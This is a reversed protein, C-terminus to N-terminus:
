RYSPVWGLWGVVGLVSAWVLLFVGDGWRLRPTSLVHYRGDFGRCKMAAVIRDARDLSGLLLHGVLYGLTRLTHRDARPRFARLRLADALRHYEQHIVEVYRVMFLFLHTLLAPVGIGRLGFGLRVPDLTALLSFAALMVANAQLAIRAVRLFGQVSWRLSGFVVLPDGPVALPVTAALVALFLALGALRRLTRVLPLASVAALLVSFGLAAALAVLSPVAYLLVALTLVALVRVRPDRGALLGGGEGEFIIM